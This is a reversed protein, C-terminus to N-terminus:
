KVVRLHSVTEPRPRTGVPEAMDSDSLDPSLRALYPDPRLAEPAEWFVDFGFDSRSRGIRPTQYCHNNGPDVRVPGCPAAYRDAYLAARVDSVSATGARAIARGLLMISVYSAEADSFPTQTAGFRAKYRAVFDKNEPTDLSAFYSACSIHGAAAGAGIVKLEPESLSCSLIPIDLGHERRARDWARLFIYSSRGVLTNFVAAPRHELVADVLHGIDTTGFNVVRECLVEGGVARLIERLVRNMEWTWIYNTGVCVLDRGIRDILHRALPVVHQNPAAGVYIVNECAEFGEYRAPHWLLADAREIVPRVQKRSASTYCGVIHQARHKRILTSCAQEYVEPDGKPDIITPVLAFTSSAANVEEIALLAGKLMESGMYGYPGSSSYLLGVPIQEM